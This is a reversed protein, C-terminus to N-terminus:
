FGAVLGKVTDLTDMYKRTKETSLIHTYNVANDSHLLEIGNFELRNFSPNLTSCAKQLSDLDRSAPVTVGEEELYAILYKTIAEHIMEVTAEEVQDRQPRSLQTIVADYAYEAETLHTQALTNEM